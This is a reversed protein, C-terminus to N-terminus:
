NVKFVSRYLAAGLGDDNYRDYFEAAQETYGGKRRSAEFLDAIQDTLKDLGATEGPSFTDKPTSDHLYKRFGDLPIQDLSAHAERSRWSSMRANFVQAARRNEDNPESQAKAQLAEMRRNLAYDITRTYLQYFDFAIFRVYSQQIEARQEDGVKMAKLQENMEDLLRQKDTAKPTGFRNGWALTTYALKANVITLNRMRALIEDARDLSSRLKVNVAFASLSDLQPLYALLVAVFAMAALLAAAGKKDYLALYVALAFSIVAATALIYPPLGQLIERDSMASREMSGLYEM